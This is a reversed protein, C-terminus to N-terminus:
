STRPLPSTQLGSHFGGMGTGNLDAIEQAGPTASLGGGEIIPGSLVPDACLMM